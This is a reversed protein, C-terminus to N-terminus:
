KLGEIRLLPQKKRAREWNALLEPQHLLRWERVRKLSRSPLNGDLVQGNLIGILAEDEAYVAHFHPGHKDNFYMRIDIGYFQSITPM